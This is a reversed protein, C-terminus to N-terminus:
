FLSAPLGYANIIKNLWIGISFYVFPTLITNIIKNSWLAPFNNFLFSSFPENYNFVPIPDNNLLYPLRIGFALILLIILNLPEQTKFLRILM